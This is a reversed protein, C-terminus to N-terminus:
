LREGRFTIGSVDILRVDLIKGIEDLTGEFVIKKDQWNRALVEQGSKKSRDEIMVRHTQGLMSKYNQATIKKQLNLLENVRRNKEQDPVNDQKLAASTHPRPSYKFIFAGDFGIDSLAHKTQEYDEETETPYGCIIDTTMSINPVLSRLRDIKNRYQSLTHDRRMEKLLRDSGSQIPLHFHRSIQPVDRITQFLKETADQPHSTTFSIKEIGKVEAVLKLLDPFDCGQNLESAYSNVNQGLLTVHKVGWEALRKVEIMVEQRTRSIEPGRVYPVICFSCVKSCGTMIPLYAHIKGDRRPMEYLDYGFGNRELELIQRKEQRVKEVVEPLKNVSRTGILVDVHPYDEFFRTKYNEVMCGMVGIVLDPKKKKIHKLQHLQQFVRLEAHERVSCTNLLVLDAEEETQVQLYGRSQLLSLALDSDYENM